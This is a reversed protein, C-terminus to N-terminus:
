HPRITERPQITRILRTTEYGRAALRHVIKTYLAPPMSPQRALIWLSDPSPSGVVAYDYERGLDIIWYDGEFPEFFSVRLKANTTRDVVRARGHAVKQEGNLLRCRNVVDIDGDQRLTYTATTATCGRQFWQPISAIEYWTGLYRNLDVASVTQTRRAAFFTSFM